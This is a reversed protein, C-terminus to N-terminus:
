LWKNIHVPFIFWLGARHLLNLKSILHTITV